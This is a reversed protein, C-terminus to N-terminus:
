SNYSNRIIIERADPQGHLHHLTVTIHEKPILSAIREPWEICILHGPNLIGKDLHIVKAEELTDIRYADIHILQSFYTSLKHIHQPINYSTRIPFTPSQVPETIGLRQAIHQVLETKGAGLEGVLCVIGARDPRSHKALELYGLIQDAITGLDKKYTPKRKM